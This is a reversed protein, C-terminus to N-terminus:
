QSLSGARGEGALVEFVAGYEIDTALCLLTARVQSGTLHLNEGPSQTGTLCKM